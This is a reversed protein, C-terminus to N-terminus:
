AKMEEIIKGVETRFVEKMQVLDKTSDPDLLANVTTNISKAIMQLGDEYSQPLRGESRIQALKALRWVHGRELMFIFEALMSLDEEDRLNHVLEHIVLSREQDQEEETMGEFQRLRETSLRILAGQAGHSVRKTLEVILSKPSPYGDGYMQELYTVADEILGRTLTEMVENRELGAQWEILMNVQSDPNEQAVEM